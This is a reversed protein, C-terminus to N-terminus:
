TLNSASHNEEPYMIAFEFRLINCKTQYIIAFQSENRPKTSKIIVLQTM